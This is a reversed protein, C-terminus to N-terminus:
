QKAKSTLNRHPEGKKPHPYSKRRYQATKGTHVGVRSYAIALRKLATQCGKTCVAERKARKASVAESLEETSGEPTLLNELSSLSSRITPALMYSGRAVGALYRQARERKRSSYLSETSPNSPLTAM